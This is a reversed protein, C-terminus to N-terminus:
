NLELRPLDAEPLLKSSGLLRLQPTLYRDL